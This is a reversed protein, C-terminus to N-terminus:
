RTRADRFWFRHRPGQRHELRPGRRSRRTSRNGGAIHVTLGGIDDGRVECEGTHVGTRIEIGLAGAAANVEQACRIARGPGDFCVLFGDGTTKIERGRHEHLVKRTAADHTDLLRRWQQDGLRSARQTSGVIDTFLVTTLIRDVEFGHREGTFFLGLEEAVAGMNEYDSM